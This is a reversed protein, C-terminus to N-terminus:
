RRCGARSPRARSRATGRSSRRGSARGSSAWGAIAPRESRSPQQEVRRAPAPVHQQQDDERATVSIVSSLRSPREPGQPRQAPRAGPRTAPRLRRDVVDGARHAVPPVADGVGAVELALVAVQVVSRRPQLAASAPRGPSRALVLSSFFDSASVTSPLDLVHGPEDDDRDPLKSGVSVM